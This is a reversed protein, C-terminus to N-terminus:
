KYRFGTGGFWYVSRRVVWGGLGGIIIITIIDCFKLSSCLHACQEGRWTITTEQDKLDLSVLPPPFSPTPFPFIKTLFTAVQIHFRSSHPVLLGVDSFPQIRVCSHLCLKDSLLTTMRWQPTMMNGSLKNVTLGWRGVAFLETINQCVPRKKPADMM